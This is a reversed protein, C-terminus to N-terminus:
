LGAKDHGKTANTRLCFSGGDKKEQRKKEVLEKTEGLIAKIQAEDLNPLGKGKEHNESRHTVKGDLRLEDKAKRKHHNFAKGDIKRGSNQGFNFKAPFLDLLDHSLPTPRNTMCAVVMKDLKEDKEFYEKVIEKNDEEEIKLLLDDFMGDDSKFSTDFDFAYDELPPCALEDWWMSHDCHVGM